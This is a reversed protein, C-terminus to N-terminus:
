PFEYHHRSFPEQLKRPVPRSYEAERCDRVARYNVPCCVIHCQPESTAETNNLQSTIAAILAARGVDVSSIPSSTVDVGVVPLFELLKISSPVKRSHKIPQRQDLETFFLPGM